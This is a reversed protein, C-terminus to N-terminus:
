RKEIQLASLGISKAFVAVEEQRGRLSGGWEDFKQQCAQSAAARVFLGCVFVSTPGVAGM